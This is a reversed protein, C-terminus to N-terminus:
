SGAGRLLCRGVRQLPLSMLPHRNGQSEGVQEFSTDADIEQHIPHLCDVANVTAGPSSVPDSADLREIGAAITQILSARRRGMGNTSEDYFSPSASGSPGLNFHSREFLKSMSGEREGCRKM